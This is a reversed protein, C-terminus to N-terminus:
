ILITAEAMKGVKRITDSSNTRLEKGGSMAV